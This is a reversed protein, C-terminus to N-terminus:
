KGICFRSFIESLIDDATVIGLVDDFEKLTLRLHESAVEIGTEQVLCNNAAELHTIAKKLAVLHRTRAAVANEEDNNIGLFVRVATLLAQLGEENKVSVPMVNDNPQLIPNIDIKNRVIIMKDAEPLVNHQFSEDEDIVYLVLDAKKIQENTRRVGEQEIVDHTDRIGATDILLMEVGDLHVTQRILDRTTGSIDSVIATDNGTIKNLLSSKGVNPKGAIVIMPHHTLAEGSEARGLLARTKLLTSTLGLGIPKVDINIDDEDPFDLTAELMSKTEIIEAQITHITESFEGELSRLASRAARTTKSNILALVSEAQILDMKNNVFARETFEGPRARRAGHAIVVELLANMVADSGHTQLEIVDEGTYSHPAQFFLCLGSDIIAKNADYFRTFCFRGPAPDKGTLMECIHKAKNGSIRIVGIGGRGPPTAIAAVTDESSM